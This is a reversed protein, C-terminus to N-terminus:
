DIDQMRFSISNNQFQSFHHEDVNVNDCEHLITYEIIVFLYSLLDDVPFTHFICCKKNGREITVQKRKYKKRKEGYRNMKKYVKM